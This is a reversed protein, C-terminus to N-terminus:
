QESPELAGTIRNRVQIEEAEVPERDAMEGQEVPRKQEALSPTEVPKLRQSSSGPIVGPEKPGPMGFAKNVSM